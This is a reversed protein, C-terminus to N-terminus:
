NRAWNRHNSQADHCEHPKRHTKGGFGFRLAPLVPLREKLLTTGPAVGEVGIMFTGAESAYHSSHCAGDFGKLIRFREFVCFM